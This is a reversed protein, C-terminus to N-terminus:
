LMETILKIKLNIEIETLPETKTLLDSLIKQKSLREKIVLDKEKILWMEELEKTPDAETEQGKAKATKKGKEKSAKVGMPREMTQEEVHCGTKSSASYAGKDTHKTRKSSTNGNPTILSCWKQDNRLVRWAHELTFKAKQDQFYMKYALEMVDDESQGSSRQRSAYAYCGAFKSVSESLKGWKQKCKNAERKPLNRVAPSAAYFEAVREWFRGARQENGVVADKSTNLWASVLVNEEPVSWRVRAERSNDPSFECSNPADSCQTSFVPIQPSNNLNPPSWQDYNEPTNTDRQNNLLETFTPSSSFPHTSDM